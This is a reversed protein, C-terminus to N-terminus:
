QDGTYTFSAIWLSGNRQVAFTFQEVGRALERDFVKFLTDRGDIAESAPVYQSIVDGVQLGGNQVNPLAKVRTAWGSGAFSTEFITGDGLVVEQVVPLIWAQTSTAGTAPDIIGFLAPLTPSLAEEPTRARLVDPIQNITEVPFGNISTIVVGPQVWVPSVAAAEAVINSNEGAPTFPLRVTWTTAVEGAAPVDTAPATDTATEVVEPEQVIENGPTVALIDVAPGEGVSEVADPSIPLALSGIQTDASPVNATQQPLSESSPAESAPQPTEIPEPLPVTQPVAALEVAEPRVQPRVDPVPQDATVPVSIVAATDNVTGQLAPEETVVPTEVNEVPAPEAVAATETETTTETSRTQETTM